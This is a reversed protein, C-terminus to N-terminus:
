KSLRLIAAEVTPARKQFDNWQASTFTMSADSGAEHTPASPSTAKTVLTIIRRGNADSLHVDINADTSFVQDGSHTGSTVVSDVDGIVAALKRWQQVSSLVVCPGDNQGFSAGTSFLSVQVDGSRKSVEIFRGDLLSMKETFSHSESSNNESNNFAKSIFEAASSPLKPLIVAEPKIKKNNLDSSTDDSESKRKMVSMDGDSTNSVLAEKFRDKDKAALSSFGPLEAYNDLHRSIQKRYWCRTWFCSFHYWMPDYMSDSKVGVMLDKDTISEKCSKCTSTTEPSSYALQFQMQQRSM